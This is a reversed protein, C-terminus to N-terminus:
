KYFFNYLINYGKIVVLMCTRKSLIRLVDELNYIFINGRIYVM